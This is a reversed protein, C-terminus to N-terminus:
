FEVSYFQKDGNRGTVSRHMPKSPLIKAHVLSSMRIVIVQRYRGGNHPGKSSKYCLYGRFLSWRAVAAVRKPDWPQDNYVRKVTNVLFLSTEHVIVYNYNLYIHTSNKLLVIILLDFLPRVV